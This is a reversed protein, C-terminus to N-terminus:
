MHIPLIFSSGCVIGGFLTRLFEFIREDCFCATLSEVGAEGPNPTVKWYHALKRMRAEAVLCCLKISALPCFIIALKCTSELSTPKPDVQLSAALFAADAWTSFPVVTFKIILLLAPTSVKVHDLWHTSEINSLWHADDVPCQYCVDKLKRLSCNCFGSWVVYMFCSLWSDCVCTSSSNHVLRQRYRFVLLM